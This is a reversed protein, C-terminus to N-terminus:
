FHLPGFLQHSHIYVYVTNFSVTLFTIYSELFCYLFALAVLHEALSRPFKCKKNYFEAPPRFVLKSILREGFRQWNPKKLNILSCLQLMTIVPEFNIDFSCALVELGSMYQLFCQLWPVWKSGHWLFRSVRSLTSFWITNDLEVTPFLADM